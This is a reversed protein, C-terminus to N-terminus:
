SSLLRRLVYPLIGGHRLYERERPTDLRVAARFEVDDARVTAEEAEANELDEVAFSERGTLGLSERSDGPLFQLPLVGMMLLNSRHIREYSEAIVARVGLLRPGKAAWDRSSGSGYEKGALVVLPTGDARYREAAEYITMEEGSPVHVTWTGESGPVLLNRLRVNAFTGRVMVEHNGRRSGYSNFDKREVGHEVLYRGAPADPKISGAPSIHDTTVSDGLIVLCRAGFIDEVVGPEISMGDFYTPRRVYTSDPDWAFLEGEPVPLTQWTEDGTFVDAYTSRFMEEGISGAVTDAVEQPTPWLDSLFVDEGESGTGIPETALDIDMRGALAYAVVLPPSALYNAKVEPHIRAEFNRNGSLVACVVLDGEAVGHSIEEPLPGSNGICTTCGYGVTHFGLEELYPTLGAKEYYETVVKSGPALSSKVWPKRTLGREVAKKALLGAGVMVAPNSTNTCSTIAAIVVAGHDLPFTEGAMSVEVASREALVIRSRTSIAADAREEEHGPATSALPDSAPFTEDVAEDHANGYDIGFSPLTDLFAGKAERLPVRDQPRRPGALSPEVSSLDLEVVQTYTPPEDPEHWLANEKCYAEVLAIHEPSRGTLKLYRLTEADVPFFGCTAGYEPSMNGITARDALPLSGLGHGFYEVFKGVVGTERLIQTVTLVLDTATAGDPLAGTLRFGVVQPVLMSIAEGLMAAEAEIGGVGWGLVGLGNIMTTHSDTGVLTDPFAVGNREDVVRALFELNVQHVIGTSPPVVKFDDFAGQGWRLFAYRERNREFELEANRRIALRTAFEDVQVSHDIVLEVPLQPNIKGPDGGLDQMANRMAALDVVAPVGTFDQLLVRGPTFSIEQSPEASAVWGAVAEVDDTTVTVGDEMRLVNELLIRLTYPLRHVDYGAQLVELRFIERSSGGVELTSRAGFSDPHAMADSELLKPRTLRGLGRETLTASRPDFHRGVAQAYPRGVRRAYAAFGEDRVPQLDETYPDLLHQRGVKRASNFFAIGIGLSVELLSRQERDAEAVLGQYVAALEPPTPLCKADDRLDALSRKLGEIELPPIDILRATTGSAGELAALLDDVSAFEAERALVGAAKLEGVLADLYIRTGRSVDAAGALLWLPSFGFALISGLEVVNGGTKRVALKKPSQEVEGALAEQEREVGGVLEVTIRLLNKATAEYFRSKRVLRPLVLEATEHLTGGLAAAVARVLREPVSVLYETLRSV